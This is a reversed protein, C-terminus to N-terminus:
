LYNGKGDTKVKIFENDKELLLKYKKTVGSNHHYNVLYIDNTIKWGPYNNMIANVVVRPPKINNFKEVTMLLKGNRDYNAIITGQPISFYIDYFFDENQYYDSKKFDFAAVQGELEKVPGTESKMVVEEIYDSNVNTLDLEPLYETRNQAFAHNAFGLVLLGILLKKM